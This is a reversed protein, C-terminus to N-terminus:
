ALRGGHRHERRENFALKRTVEFELDIGLQGCLNGARIVVDALEAGVGEPKGHEGEYTRVRGDRAAECAESVETHILALQALIEQAHKASYQLTRCDVTDDDHWGHSCAAEFATKQMESIRM